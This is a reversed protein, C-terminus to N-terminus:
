LIFLIEKFIKDILKKSYQKMVNRKLKRFVSFAPSSYQSNSPEILGKKLLDDIQEEVFKRNESSYQRPKINVPVEDKLRFSLKVGKAAQSNDVNKMLDPYRKLVEEAEKIIDQLLDQEVNCISCDCHSM